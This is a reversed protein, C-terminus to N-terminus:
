KNPQELAHLREGVAAWRRLDGVTQIAVFITLGLVWIQTMSM